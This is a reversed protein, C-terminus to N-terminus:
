FSLSFISISFLTIKKGLLMYVTLRKNKMINKKRNVAVTIPSDSVPESGSESNFSIALVL